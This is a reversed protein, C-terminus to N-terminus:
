YIFICRLKLFILGIIIQIKVIHFIIFLFPIKHVALPILQFQFIDCFM